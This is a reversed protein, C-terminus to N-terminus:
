RKRLQRWHRALLVLVAPFWNAKTQMTREIASYTLFTFATIPGRLIKYFDSTWVSPFIGKVKQSHFDVPLCGLGSIMELCNKTETMTKTLFINYKRMDYENM